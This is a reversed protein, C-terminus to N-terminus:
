TNDFFYKILEGTDNDQYYCENGRIKNVIIRDLEFRAPNFGIRTKFRDMRDNDFKEVYVYEDDRVPSTRRHFYIM